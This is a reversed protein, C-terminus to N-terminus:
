VRIGLAVSSELKYVFIETTFTRGNINKGENDNDPEILNVVWAAEDKLYATEFEIFDLGYINLDNEINFSSFDSPDPYDDILFQIDDYKEFVDSEMRNKIRNRFWRMIYLITKSFCDDTSLGNIPHLELFAQYTSYQKFFKLKTAQYNYKTAEGM